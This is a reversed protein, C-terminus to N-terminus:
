IQASRNRRFSFFVCGLITLLLSVAVVLAAIILSFVVINATQIDQLEKDPYQPYGTVDAGASM